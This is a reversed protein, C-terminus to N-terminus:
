SMASIRPRGQQLQLVQLLHGVIGENPSCAPCLQVYGKGMRLGMLGDVFVRWVIPAPIAAALGKPAGGDNISVLL